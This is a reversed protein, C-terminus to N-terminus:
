ETLLIIKEEQKEFYLEKKSTSSGRSERLCKKIVNELERIREKEM